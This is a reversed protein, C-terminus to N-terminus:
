GVEKTAQEAIGEALGKITGEHPGEIMVRLKPETGSWRVLVRGENGLRDEAARVARQTIPMDELPRRAPLKVNVLVQPVREM